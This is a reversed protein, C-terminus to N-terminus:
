LYQLIKDFVTNLEEPTSCKRITARDVVASSKSADKSEGDILLEGQGGDPMDWCVGIAFAALNGKVADAGAKHFLEERLCNGNRMKEHKVSSTSVLHSLAAVVGESSESYLKNILPFLNEAKNLAVGGVLSNFANRVSTHAFDAYDGNSYLPCDVSIWAHDGTSPIIVADYSQHYSRRIGYFEAYQKTLSAPLGNTGLRERSETIRVTSFMVALGFPLTETGVFVTGAEQTQALIKADLVYPYKKVFRDSADPELPTIKQILGARAASGIAFAAVSKESAVLSQLYADNLAHYDLKKSSKELKERISPWSQGSPFECTRLIRQAVRFPIRAEMSRILDAKRM